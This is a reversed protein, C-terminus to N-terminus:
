MTTSWLFTLKGNLIELFVSIKIKNEVLQFYSFGELSNDQIDTEYEEYFWM